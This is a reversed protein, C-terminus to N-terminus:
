VVGSKSNNFEFNYEFYFKEFEHPLLPKSFYYGQACDCGIAKLIRAQEKTEVGEAVVTKGMKHAYGIVSKILERIEKREISHTFYKDIKVIDFPIQTISMLTNFGTGFDDISIKYGKERLRKLLNVLEEGRDCVVRETIEIEILSIDFNNEKLLQRAWENFEDDILEKSTLNVALSLNLGKNKWETIHSTANKIAFKSIEQIFGIDEAIKIFVDPGVENKGAINWRILVEAGSITNDSLNIKPQYVLYLEDKKVSELLAGSLEYLQRRHEELEDKYYYIGSEKEQGQEYAIRAKTFVEIPTENGGRYNYVGAKMSVRFNFNEVHVSQSYKEIALKIKKLYGCNQCDILVIEDNGSTYIAEDDCACELHSILEKIIRGVVKYDVYKEIGEVNTLKLSIITFSEGKDMKEKLDLLLKNINYRGSFASIFDRARAQRALRDAKNFIFGTIFGVLM